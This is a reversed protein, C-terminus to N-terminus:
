DRWKGRRRNLVKLVDPWTKAPIARTGPTPEDTGFLILQKCVENQRLHRIDDDILVEAGISCCVDAKSEGKSLCGVRYICNEIGILSLWERVVGARSENRATVVHLQAYQSLEQIAVAAGDVVPTQLTSDRGYILEAMEEYAALGILPLYKTRNCGEPKVVVGHRELLYKSKILGTNALTGDFDIAVVKQM